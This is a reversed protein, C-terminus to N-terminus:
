VRTAVVAFKRVRGSSMWDVWLRHAALLEQLAQEGVLSSVVEAATTYEHLLSRAVVLHSATCEERWTITLGADTLLRSLQASSVLTVTDADPMAAREGATLPAGEEVTLGFTGGAPLVAAVAGVLAAKDAFALMTELLLVVDFRGAPVPPIEGVQFRCSLHRTRERAIGVAEASSDVGLYRCGLEETILRGPGATGCCLDLVRAGPGVGARGALALIERAQMFSEQGVYEGPPYAARRAPELALVFPGRDDQRM